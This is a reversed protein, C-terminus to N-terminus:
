FPIEEDSIPTMVVEDRDNEPTEAKKESKAGIRPTLEFNEVVLIKKVRKEGEKTEYPQEKYRGKVFMHTGVVGFRALNEAMKGWCEIEYFETQKKGDKVFNLAINQKYGGAVSTTKGDSLAVERVQIDSTLNGTGLVVDVESRKGKYERVETIRQYM